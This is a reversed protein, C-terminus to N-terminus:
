KMPKVHVSLLVFEDLTGMVGWFVATPAIQLPQEESASIQTRFSFSLNSKLYPGYTLLNLQAPAVRINM